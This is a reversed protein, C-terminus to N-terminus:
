TKNADSCFTGHSCDVSAESRSDVTVDHDSVVNFQGTEESFGNDTWELSRDERGPARNRALTRWGFFVSISQVVLHEHRIRKM